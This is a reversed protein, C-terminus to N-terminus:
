GGQMPVIFFLRDGANLMTISYAARPIFQENIAVAFHASCLQHAKLFEDLTQPKNFPYQKDNVYIMSM